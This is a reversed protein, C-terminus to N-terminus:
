DNNQVDNVKELVTDVCVIQLYCWEECFDRGRSNKKVVGTYTM